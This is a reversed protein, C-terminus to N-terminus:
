EIVQPVKFFGDAMYPGLTRIHQPALSDQITDERFVNKLPLVHTTPAITDVNLKQLKDVYQLIGELDKTLQRSEEATLNIRSLHAIHQVDKDSIM